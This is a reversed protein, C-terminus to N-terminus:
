KPLFHFLLISLCLLNFLKLFLSLSMPPCVYHGVGRIGAYCEALRLGTKEVYFIGPLGPSYPSAPLTQSFPFGVLIFM